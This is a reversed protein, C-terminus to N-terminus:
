QEERKEEVTDLDFIIAVNGSIAHFPATWDKGKVLFAFASVPRDTVNGELGPSFHQEFPTALQSAYSSGHEMIGSNQYEFDIYHKSNVYGFRNVESGFTYHDEDFDAFWEVQPEWGADKIVAWQKALKEILRINNIKLHPWHINLHNDQVEWAIKGDITIKDIDLAGVADLEKIASLCAMSRNDQNVSTIMQNSAFVRPLGGGIVREARYGVGDVVETVKWLYQEVANLGFDILGHRQKEPHNEPVLWSEIDHNDNQKFDFKSFFFDGVEIENKPEYDSENVNAGDGGTVNNWYQDGGINIGTIQEGRGKGSLYRSMSWHKGKNLSNFVKIFYVWSWLQGHVGSGRDDTDVTNVKVVQTHDTESYSSWQCWFQKKFESMKEANDFYERLKESGFDVDSQRPTRDAVISFPTVRIDGYTDSLGHNKATDWWDPKNVLDQDDAGRYDNLQRANQLYGSCFLTSAHTPKISPTDREFALTGEFYGPNAQYLNYYKYNDDRPDPFVSDNSLTYTSAARSPMFYSISRLHDEYNFEEINGDFRSQSMRSYSDGPLYLNGRNLLRNHDPTMAKSDDFATHHERFGTVRYTPWTGDGGERDVFFDTNWDSMYSYYSMSAIDKNLCYSGYPAIYGIGKGLFGDVIEDLDNTLKSLNNGRFNYQLFPNGKQVVELWQISGNGFWNGENNFREHDFDKWCLAQNVVKSFFTQEIYLHTDNVGNTAEDDDFDTGELSSVGHANYNYANWIPQYPSGHGHFHRDYMYSTFIPLRYNKESLAMLLESRDTDQTSEENESPDPNTILFNHSNEDRWNFGDTRNSAQMLWGGAVFIENSTALTSPDPLKALHSLPIDNPVAKETYTTDTGVDDGFNLFPGGCGTRVGSHRESVEEYLNDPHVPNNPHPLPDLLNGNNDANINYFWKEYDTSTVSIEEETVTERRNATTSKIEFEVLGVDNRGKNETIQWVQNDGIYNVWYGETVVDGNYKKRTGDHWMMPPVKKSPKKFLIEIGRFDPLEFRTDPRDPNVAELVLLFWRGINVKRIRNDEINRLDYSNENPLNTDMIKWKNEVVLAAPQEQWKVIDGVELIRRDEANKGFEGLYEAPTYRTILDNERNKHYFYISPTFDCGKDEQECCGSCGPRGM